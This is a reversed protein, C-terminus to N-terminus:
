REIPINGSKLDSYHGSIIRNSRTAVLHLLNAVSKASPRFAVTDPTDISLSQALPLDPGIIRGSRPRACTRAGAWCQNCWASIIAKRVLGQGSTSESALESSRKLTPLCLSNRSKIRYLQRNLSLAFSNNEVDILPDASEM